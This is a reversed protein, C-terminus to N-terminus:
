EESLPPTEQAGGINVNSNQTVQAQEPTPCTAVATTLEPTCVSMDHGSTPM